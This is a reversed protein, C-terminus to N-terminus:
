EEYPEVQHPMAIPHPFANPISREYEKSVTEQTEHHDQSSLVEQYHGPQTIPTMGKLRPDVNPDFNEVVHQITKHRTQPPQWSTSFSSTYPQNSTAM